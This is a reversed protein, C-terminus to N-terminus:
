LQARHSASEYGTGYVCSEINNDIWKVSLSFSVSTSLSTWPGTAPSRYVPPPWWSPSSLVMLFLAAPWPAPFVSRLDGVPRASLSCQMDGESMCAHRDCATSVAAELASATHVCRVKTSTRWPRTTYSWQQLRPLVSCMSSLCSRTRVTPLCVPSKKSLFPCHLSM